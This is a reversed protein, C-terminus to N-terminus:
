ADYEDAAIDRGGCDPCGKKVAVEAEDYTDFGHGCQMCECLNKLDM